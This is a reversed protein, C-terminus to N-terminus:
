FRMSDLSGFSPSQLLHQARGPSASYFQSTPAPFCCDGTHDARLSSPVASAGPLLVGVRRAVDKGRHEACRANLHVRTLNHQRSISRVGEWNRVCETNGPKGKLHLRNRYDTTRYDIRHTSIVFGELCM